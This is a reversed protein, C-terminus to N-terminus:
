RSIPKGWNSRWQGGQKTFRLFVCFFFFLGLLGYVFAGIAWLIPMTRYVVWGHAPLPPLFPSLPLGPPLSVSRVRPSGTTPLPSAGRGSRDAM